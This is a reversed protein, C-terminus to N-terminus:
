LLPSSQGKSIILRYREPWSPNLPDHRLIGGYYLTVLLDVASLSSTVHGTAAKVCMDLVLKRIERSKQRLLAIDTKM